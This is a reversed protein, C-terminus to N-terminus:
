RAATELSSVDLESPTGDDTSHRVMLADVVVVRGTGAEVLVPNLDAAALLDSFDSALWGLRSATEALRDLPTEPLLNRYGGLRRGMRTDALMGAARTPAIPAPASRVDKELEVLTGGAGMTVIAAFVPDAAFGLLAEVGHGVMPQIEFGEIRAGPVHRSVSNRIQQIAKDLEHADAVDLVVGGVDSRHAIDPSAVKVVVPYRGAAWSQAEAASSAVVSEITPIGYASLLEACAAPPLDGVERAVMQRLRALAAPEPLDADRQVAQAIPKQNMSLAVAAAFGNGIGRVLPVPALWSRLEDNTAIASPSVAIVPKDYGSLALERLVAATHESYTLEEGALSQHGEMVVILADVNDDDAVVRYVHDYLEDSAEPSGGADLPNAVHGGGLLPTLVQTTRDTFSALTVDFGSSIDAALGSEGGSDTVIGLRAGGALPMGPHGLVQMAVALEDYDAVVPVDLDRFLAAYGADGGALAGTHARTAASGLETRGVKLVAVRKGATRLAEVGDVFSSLNRISEIVLGVASTAEDNALWRLYDGSTLGFENGTSVIKSFGLGEVSRTLFAASGSQTVLALPGREQRLLTDPYFWCAIDDTVNILGMCNPGHVAMSSGAIFDLLEDQHGSDLGASPVLAAQCGAADLDRLVPLLASAPLSVLAADVPGSLDGVSPVAPVGAVERAVPHVVHLEVDASSSQLNVLSAYGSGTERTSAGIVVASKPRLLAEVASARNSVHVSM